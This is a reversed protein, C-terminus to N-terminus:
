SKCKTNIIHVGDYSPKKDRIVEINTGCSGQRGYRLMKVFKMQVVVFFGQALENTYRDIYSHANVNPM